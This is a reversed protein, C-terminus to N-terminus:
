KRQDGIAYGCVTLSAISMIIGMPLLVVALILIIVRQRDATSAIEATATAITPLTIPATTHRIHDSGYRLTPSQPHHSTHYITEPIGRQAVQGSQSFRSGDEQNEDTSSM